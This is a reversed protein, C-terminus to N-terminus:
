RGRFRSSSLRQGRGIGPKRHGQIGRGQQTTGGADTDEAGSGEAAQGLEVLHVNGGKGDAPPPALADNVHNGLSHGGALAGHGGSRQMRRPTVPAHGRELPENSGVRNHVAGIEHHGRSAPGGPHDGHVVEGDHAERLKTVGRREPERPQDATRHRLPGPDMRGGQEHSGLHDLSEVERGFPHSGDVM